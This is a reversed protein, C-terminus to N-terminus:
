EPANKSKDGNGGDTGWPTFPLVSKCDFKGVHSLRRLHFEIKEEVFSNM